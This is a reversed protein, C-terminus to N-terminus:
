AIEPHIEQSHVLLCFFLSDSICSTSTNACHVLFSACVMREAGIPKCELTELTGENYYRRLFTAREEHKVVYHEPVPILLSSDLDGFLLDPMVEQFNLSGEKVQQTPPKYVEQLCEWVPVLYQPSPTVDKPSNKGQTPGQNIVEWDADDSHAGSGSRSPKVGYRAAYPLSGTTKISQIAEKLTGHVSSPFVDSSYSSRDSAAESSHESPPPSASLM